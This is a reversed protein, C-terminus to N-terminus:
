ASLNKSSIRFYHTVPDSKTVIEVQGLNAKEIKAKSNSAVASSGYSYALVRYSGSTAELRPKFGLQALASAKQEATKQDFAGALYVHYITLRRSTDVYYLNNYGLGKLKKVPEDMSEAYLDSEVQCAWGTGAASSALGLAAVTMPKPVAPVTATAPKAAGPKVPAAITPKVPAATAPKVPAATAPKVPAATAPKVPAKTAPKVPAATAPAAPANVAPKAGPEKAPVVPQSPKGPVPAATKAGAVKTPAALKAGASATHGPQPAPQAPQIEKAPKPAKPMPKTITQAVQETKKLLKNYLFTGGFYGGAALVLVGLVVILIIMTTKSGGEGKAKIRKERAKKGLKEEKPAEAEAEPKLDLEPEDKLEGVKDKDVPYYKHEQDKSIEEESPEFFADLSAGSDKGKKDEPM